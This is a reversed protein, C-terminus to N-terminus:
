ARRLLQRHGEGALLPRAAPQCTQMHVAQTEGAPADRGCSSLAKLGRTSAAERCSVCAPRVGHGFFRKQVVKWDGFRDEVRWVGKVAPLKSQKRICPDVPRCALAASPVCQRWAPASPAPSLYVAPAACSAWLLTCHCADHTLRPWGQLWSATSGAAAGTLVRLLPGSCVCSPNSCRFGCDAFAQQSEPTYLYDVFAHAAKITAEKQRASRRQVNDDVVAVPTQM